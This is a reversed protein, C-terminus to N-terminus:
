MKSLRATYGGGPALSINLKTENTVELTKSRYDEAWRKANPGDGFNVMKSKGEELFSLDLLLTRANEDTMAGVHWTSQHKRAVM